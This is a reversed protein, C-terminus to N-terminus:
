LHALVRHWQEILDMHYGWKHELHMSADKHVNGRDQDLVLISKADVM